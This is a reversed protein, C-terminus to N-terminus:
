LLAVLARAEEETMARADIGKRIRGNRELNANTLGAQANYWVQTPLEHRRIYYRFAQENKAGDLILWRTKPYGLGNSFTVNLGFAVKNVFDDMYSELNGDYNSAFFLRKGGDIFTWSASHITLVRALRGRVFVHRTSYNIIWLVFVGTLRRFLGPKLGGMASFQNTVNHDELAALKTVHDQNPRPVIEPDSNERRRLQFFYFPAYILLLPTALLLALPVLILHMTNRVRWALPTTSEPTLRIRGEALEKDVFQRLRDRVELAPRTALEPNQRLYSALALHLEKEELLQRVTRGRWDFFYTSPRHERERLWRALDANPDYGACHSFIRRLGAGAHQCLAQVFADYDGDFDGMFALSLPYFPKPLGYAEYDATTQDDLIVFRAFHLTEFEGFPVLTNHPDAEGPRSNMSLLLNRLAGLKSPEIPAVM